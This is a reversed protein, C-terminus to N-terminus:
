TRVPLAWSGGRALAGDVSCVICHPRPSLMQPRASGRLGDYHLLRAEGPYSTVASLFMAVAASTVIGNLPMVAPQPVSANEFYPDARRQAPGMMEWRVQQGDIGDACVLCGLGPALMQARGTVSALQGAEVRIAVGMDIMPILYQYALQNLVARSAMSDTCGFIFDVETLREALAGDTVDGVHAQCAASPNIAIIAREAVQVKPLGIDEATAGLLRNLNTTDVEDHDVLMFRGVGLHALQQAVISGTGGLGVLAVSLQGLVAQGEAGFARIQRDYRRDAEGDGAESYDRVTPGVGVAVASTASHGDLERLHVRAGTVVAAFHQRDPIRAKIYSALTVEGADDVPSFAELPQEGPHTHLLVIGAGMSRARNVTELLFEPTLSARVASREQYADEPALMLEQVTFRSRGDATGAAHVFGVACTEVALTKAAAHLLALSAGPFAVRKM